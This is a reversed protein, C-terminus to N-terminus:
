SQWPIVGKPFKNSGAQVLGMLVIILLVISMALASAMVTEGSDELNYIVVGLTETGSSWLLASVTLENVATLFVLIAGAAASPAALPLVIDRLRRGLHAGVSAAAEEMAPDLQAISAQIPRLMVVFFRALYAMLIIWITGYLTLDTFPLNLFTLICAISLVVGPLAYPLDILADLLRSLRTARREMLWALPLCIALLVAAASTALILSNGYARRTVPQTILVEKWAELTANGFNLTVGYAPILSTALLALLPLALIVFIFVWLGIEVPQRAAGLNLALPTGSLGVLGFGRRSLVFRSFLVGVIAVAGILLALVAVEPLVSPGMGVLRQYILTPLTAYGAPIGLMAPIGFNGLATVFAMAGGAILAPMSLPLVTQVWVRMPGAGSMRAAEVLDAPIMRLGARLTLFVLSAHQIGLLLIIGSPSHLPQPSGLPPALGVVKLLTSSPGAMQMWALATIQPPIMMPVMLCFVLAGKGRIDTLAVLYAFAGGILISLLTGGGATILSHNLATGTSPRALVTTLHSTTFGDGFGIGELLLRVVPGLAILAVPLFILPLLRDLSRSSKRTLPLTNM